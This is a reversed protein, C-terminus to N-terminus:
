PNEVCYFEVCYFCVDAYLPLSDWFNRTLIM